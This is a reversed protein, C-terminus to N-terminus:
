FRVVSGDDRLDRADQRPAAADEAVREPELVDEGAENGLLAAGAGPALVPDAAPPVGGRPADLLVDLDTAAARGLDKALAHARVRVPLEGGQELAGAQPDFRGPAVEVSA